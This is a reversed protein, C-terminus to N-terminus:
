VTGGTEPLRRKAAVIQEDISRAMEDLLDHGQREADRVAERLKALDSTKLEELEQRIEELRARAQHIKRIARVLREAVGEGAIAEPSTEWEKLLRRLWDIDGEAYARNVQAMVRNRREKEQPDAALDPHVRRAVERYLRKLEESPQFREREAPGVAGATAQESQRARERAEEARRETEPDGPRQKAMLEEIGALLRDLEAYKVGVIRIYLREFAELEAGQTALDLERQALEAEISALEALKRDLEEQEPTKLTIPTRDM